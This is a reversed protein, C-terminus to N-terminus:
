KERDGFIATGVRVYTAGEQIAVPYDGTMGMSLHNLPHNNQNKCQSKLQKLLRALKQFYPRSNEPNQSYPPMIMLGCLRINPLTVAMQILSELSESSIGSKSLEGTSVQILIDQCKEYKQACHNIESLLATNDVSHILDFLRVAYKAKNRQLHGIFHWSVNLMQPYDQLLNNIEAIKDRAEQVYNEGFIRAGAQIATWVRESDHKKSVAVLHIDDPNRHCARASAAISQSVADLRNKISM